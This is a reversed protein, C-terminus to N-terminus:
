TVVFEEDLLIDKKHNNINRKELLIYVICFMIIAIIGLYFM